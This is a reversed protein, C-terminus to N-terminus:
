ERMLKKINDESDKHQRGSEAIEAGLYKLTTVQEINIGAIKINIKVNEAGVAMINTKNKNLIM